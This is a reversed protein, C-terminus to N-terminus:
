LPLAPDELTRRLHATAVALRHRRAPHRARAAHHLAIGISFLRAGEALARRAAADGGTGALVDDLVRPGHFYFLSGFDWRADALTTDGFDILAALRGGRCIFQREHLDSHCPVARGGDIERRIRRVAARVRAALEPAAQLAPHAALEQPELPLPDDFRTRLGALASAESGVLTGSPAVAPVGYRAGPLGHLVALTRGLDAAAAPALEGRPDHSGPVFRDLVWPTEGGPEPFDLSSALTEAVAAGAAALRRRISLDAELGCRTPRKTFLRLVCAQGDRDVKWVECTAGSALPELSAANAGIAALVAGPDSKPKPSAM